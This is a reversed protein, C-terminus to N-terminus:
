TPVSQALALSRWWRRAGQALSECKTPRRLGALKPLRRWTRRYAIYCSQLLIPGIRVLAGIRTSSVHSSTKLANVTVDLAIGTSSSVAAALSDRPSKIKQM